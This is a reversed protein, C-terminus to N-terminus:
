RLRAALEALASVAKSKGGLQRLPLGRQLAEDFAADEPIVTANSYNTRDRLVQQVQWEPRAGLVSARLRNVVLLNPVSASAAVGLGPQSDLFRGLSVADAQTVQLVTTAVSAIATLMTSQVGPPADIVIAGFRESFLRILAAVSLYNIADRNLNLGYGSLFDVSIGKAILRVSLDEFANADLKGQEMLRIAALVAAQQSPLAFQRHISPWNEDLDILLVRTGGAALEFALNAAIASRGTGSCVSQVSIVKAQSGADQVPEAASHRV